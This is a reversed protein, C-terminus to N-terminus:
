SADEGLASPMGENTVLSSSAGLLGSTTVHLPRTDRHIERPVEPWRSTPLRAQVQAVAELALEGLVSIGHESRWKIQLDQPGLAELLQALREAAQSVRRLFVARGPGGSVPQMDSLRPRAVFPADNPGAELVREIRRTYAVLAQEAALLQQETTSRGDSHHDPPTTHPSDDEDHESLSPWLRSVAMRLRQALEPGTTDTVVGTSWM